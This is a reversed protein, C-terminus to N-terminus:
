LNKRRRFSRAKRGKRKTRRGGAQRPKTELAAVKDELTAIRMLLDAQALSLPNVTTTAAPAPSPIVSPVPPMPASPLITTLPQPPVTAPLPPPTAAPLPPVAVPLAAAAVTTTPIQLAAELQQMASQATLDYPTAM